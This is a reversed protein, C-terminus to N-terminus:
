LTSLGVGLSGSWGGEKSPVCDVLEIISSAEATGCGGVWGEDLVGGGEDFVGGGEELVRGGEELVRGDEDFVGGDEGFVGGGEELVRGDEELGSGVAATTVVDTADGVEGKGGAVEVGAGLGM